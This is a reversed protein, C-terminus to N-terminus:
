LYKELIEKLPKCVNNTTEKSHLGPSLVLWLSPVHTFIKKMPQKCFKWVSFIGFGIENRIEEKPVTIL